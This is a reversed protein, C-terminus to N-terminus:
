RRPQRARQGGSWGLESAQPLWDFTEDEGALEVVRVRPRRLSSPRWCPRSGSAWRGRRRRHGPRARRHAGVADRRADRRANRRPHAGRHIPTPLDAPPVGMPERRSRRGHTESRPHDCARPDGAYPRDWPADFVRHHRASGGRTTRRRVVRVEPRHPGYSNGPIRWRVGGIAKRLRSIGWRRGHGSRRAQGQEGHLGAVAAAHMPILEAVVAHRGDALARGARTRRGSSSSGSRSPRGASSATRGPLPTSPRAAAGTRPRGARRRRDDGAAATAGAGQGATRDVCAVCCPRPRPRRGSGRGGPRDM